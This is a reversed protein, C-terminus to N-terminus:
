DGIYFSQPATGRVASSGSRPPAKDKKIVQRSERIPTPEKPKPITPPTSCASKAKPKPEEKSVPTEAAQPKRLSSVHVAQKKRVM